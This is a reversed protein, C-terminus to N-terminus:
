IRSNIRSLISWKKVGQDGIDALGNAAFKNLDNGYNMRLGYEQGVQLWSDLNGM